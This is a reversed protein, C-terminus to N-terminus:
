LPPTALGIDRNSHISGLALLDKGTVHVVATAKVRNRLLAAVLAGLDNREGAGQLLELLLRRRALDLHELQDGVAEHVALDADAEEERLLRDLRMHAVQQRLKLGARPGM